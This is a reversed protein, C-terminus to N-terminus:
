LFSGRKETNETDKIFIVLEKGHGGASDGPERVTEPGFVPLWGAGAGRRIGRQDNSGELGGAAGPGAGAYAFGPGARPMPCRGRPVAGAHDRGYRSLGAAGRAARIGYRGNGGPFCAAAEAAFRPPCVIFFRQVGDALCQAAAREMLPPAPLDGADATQTRRSDFM